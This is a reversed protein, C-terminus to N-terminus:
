RPLGDELVREVVAQGAREIREILQPPLRLTKNRKPNESAPRGPRRKPQTM